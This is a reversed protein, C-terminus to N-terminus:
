PDLRAEVAMGSRMLVLGMEGKGFQWIEVSWQKDSGFEGLSGYGVAGRREEVIRGMGYSGIGHRGSREKGLLGRAKRERDAM